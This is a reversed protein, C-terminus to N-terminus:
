QNTSAVLRTRAFSTPELVALLNQEEVDTLPRRPPLCDGCDLGMRALLMKVAAFAPFRLVVRILENIDDQMARAGAWDGARSRRYVEVFWDPVLNYFTGIGGDAGMLLGAVLVEDRGSYIISGESRISWLKYLNFDTFKLGAVNPIAALELIQATDAIAPCLDPFYYIFLPVDSAAALAEYYCRIEAFTHGDLPPLSSIAHVGARAAHRALAIAEATSYAGVHAIVTKGAPSNSVAAEVAQMRDAAPLLLGEGTQGCVYIGDSNAEYVYRLLREFAEPWFHGDRLPTVVAPLIGAFQHHPTTNM